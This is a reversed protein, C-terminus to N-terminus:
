RGYAGYSKIGKRWAFSACLIFILAWVVVGALDGILYESPRRSQLYASPLYYFYKFPLIEVIRRVKGSLLDFPFLQGGLVMFLIRKLHSFSWVDDFWFALLAIFFDLFFHLLFGLIVFLIGLLLGTVSIPIKAAFFVMWVVVFLPLVLGAWFIQRTVADVLSVVWIRYPKLLQNSFNGLRIDPALKDSM